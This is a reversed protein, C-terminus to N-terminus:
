CNGEQKGHEHMKSMAEKAIMGDLDEKSLIKANETMTIAIAKPIVEAMLDVIERASTKEEDTAGADLGAKVVTGLTTTTMVLLETLDNIIQGAGEKSLGLPIAGGKVAKLAESFSTNM